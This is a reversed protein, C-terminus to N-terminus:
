AIKNTLKWFHDFLALKAENKSKYSKDSFIRRSPERKIWYSFGGEESKCVGVNYGEINIFDNGKSSTRWNRTLWKSKRSARDKMKRESKKPSVYDGSMKEACICGVQLEEPYHLHKMIHVYRIKEHGCMECSAYEIEEDPYVDYGLDNISM